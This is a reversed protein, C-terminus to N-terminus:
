TDGQGFGEVVSTGEDLNARHVGGDCLAEGGVPQVGPVGVVEFRYQTMETVLDDESRGQRNSDDFTGVADDAAFLL